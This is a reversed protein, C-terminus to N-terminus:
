IERGKLYMKLLAVNQLWTFPMDAILGFIIVSAIQRLTESPTFIYLVIMALISTLSMTIGTKASSRIRENVSGIGRKLVRTSLLIDTDVSYGLLILLASLTAFTMKVDFVNMMAIAFLIDSTAALIIALSPVVIRFTLFVVIAMGIFAITFAKIAEKWFAQSIGAGVYRISIDEYDLGAKQMIEMVVDKDMDGQTELILLYSSGSKGKKVVVDAGITNEAISRVENVNFDELVVVDAGVGGTFDLGKKFFEGTSIRHNVLVGIAFLLLLLSIAISIRYNDLLFDYSSKSGHKRKKTTM